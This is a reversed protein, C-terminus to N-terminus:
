KLIGANFSQEERWNAINSICYEHWSMNSLRNKCKLYLKCSFCNCEQYPKVGYKM